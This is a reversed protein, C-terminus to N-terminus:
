FRNFCGSHQLPVKVKLWNGVSNVSAFAFCVDDLNSDPKLQAFFRLNFVFKKGASSQFKCSRCNSRHPHIDVKQVVLADSRRTRARHHHHLTAGRETQVVSRTLQSQELHLARTLRSTHLARNALSSVAESFSRDKLKNEKCCTLPLFCTEVDEKM